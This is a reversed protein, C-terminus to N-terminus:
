MKKNRREPKISKPGGVKKSGEKVKKKGIIELQPEDFWEADCSKGDKDVKPQVGIRFCGNLYETKAIAVGKFGSVKDKVQDGLNIEM